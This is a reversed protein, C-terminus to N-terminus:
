STIKRTQVARAYRAFHNEAGVPAKAVVANTEVLGEVEIAVFSNSIVNCHLTGQVLAESDALFVRLRAGRETLALRWEGLLCRRAATGCGHTDPGAARAGVYKKASVVRQAASWIGGITRGV